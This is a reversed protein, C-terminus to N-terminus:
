PKVVNVGDLDTFDVDDCSKASTTSVEDTHAVSRDGASDSLPPENEGDSSSKITASAAKEFFDDLDLDSNILLLDPM